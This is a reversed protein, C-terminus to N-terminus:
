IIWNVYCFVFGGCLFSKFKRRIVVSFYQYLWFVICGFIDCKQNQLSTRMYLVNKSRLFHRFYFWFLGIGLIWCGFSFTWAFYIVFASSVERKVKLMWSLIYFDFALYLRSRAAVFLCFSFIEFWITLNVSFASVDVIHTRVFKFWHSFDFSSNCSRFFSFTRFVRAFKDYWIIKKHLCPSCLFYFRHSFECFAHVRQLSSFEFNM